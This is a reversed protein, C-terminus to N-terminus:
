GGAGRALQMARDAIVMTANPRALRRAAASMTALRVPDAVLATIRGALTTGTLNKQEVVEAAGEFALV